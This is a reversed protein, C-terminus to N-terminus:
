YLYINYIWAPLEFTYTYIHALTCHMNTYSHILLYIECPTKVNNKDYMIWLLCLLVVV